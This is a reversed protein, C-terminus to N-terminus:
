KSGNREEERGEERGEERVVTVYKKVVKMM